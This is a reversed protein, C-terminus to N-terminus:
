TYDKNKMTLCTDTEVANSGYQESWTPPSEYWAPSTGTNWPQYGVRAEASLAGVFCFTHSCVSHIHTWQEIVLTKSCIEMRSNNKIITKRVMIYKLLPKAIYLCLWVTMNDNCDLWSMKTYMKVNQRETNPQYKLHLTDHLLDKLSQLIQVFSVDYVPVQLDWVKKEGVSAAHFNTQRINSWVYIDSTQLFM